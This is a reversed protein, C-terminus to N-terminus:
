SSSSPLFLEPHMSKLKESALGLLKNFGDLQCFISRLDTPRPWRVCLSNDIDSIELHGVFGDPAWLEARLYESDEQDAIIFYFTGTEDM